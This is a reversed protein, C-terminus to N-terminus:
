VKYLQEATLVILKEIKQSFSENKEVPKDVNNVVGLVGVAMEMHRAVIVENVTTSLIVKTGYKLASKRETTSYLM